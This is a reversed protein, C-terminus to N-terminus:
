TVRSMASRVAAAQTLIDDCCRRDEVMRKIARVHGEIRSLANSLSKVTEESLYESSQCCPKPKIKNKSM